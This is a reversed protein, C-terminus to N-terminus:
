PKRVAEAGPGDVEGKHGENDRKAERQYSYRGDGVGKAWMCESGITDQLWFIAQVGAEHLANFCDDCPRKTTYAVLNKVVTWNFIERINLLANIEAHTVTSCMDCGCAKSKDEFRDPGNFGTAIVYKGGITLVCGHKEGDPQPSWQSVVFALMAMRDKYKRRIHPLDLM